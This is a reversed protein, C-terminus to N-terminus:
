SYDGKAMMVLGLRYEVGPLSPFKEQVSRLLAEADRALQEQLMLDATLLYAQASEPAVGFLSSFTKRANDGDGAHLSTIALTYWLETNGANWETATQLLPLADKPRNSFHYSFALMEVTQKWLPSGPAEQKIALTLHKISNAFDKKQYYALGLAHHAEACRPDKETWPTLLAIVADTDGASLLKGARDLAERCDALAVNQ